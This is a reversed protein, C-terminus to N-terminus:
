SLLRLLLRREKQAPAGIMAKTNDVILRRGPFLPIQLSYEACVRGLKQLSLYLKELSNTTIASSRTRNNFTASIIQRGEDDLEYIPHLARFPGEIYELECQKLFAFEEPHSQEMAELAKMTDILTILAPQMTSGTEMADIIVLSPVTQLHPWLTGPEQASSNWECQGMVLSEAIPTQHTSLFLKGNLVHKAANDTQESGHTHIQHLSNAESSHLASDRLFSSSYSLYLYSPWQVQLSERSREVEVQEPKMHVDIHVLAPRKSTADRLWCYPFEAQYGDDWEIKLSKALPMCSRLPQCKSIVSSVARATVASMITLLRLRPQPFARAFCSVQIVKEPFEKRKQMICDLCYNEKYFFSCQVRNCVDRHCSYCKAGIIAFKKYDNKKKTKVRDIQQNLSRLYYVDHKYSLIGAKMPGYRARVSFGCLVCKFNFYEPGQQEEQQVDAQVASGSEEELSSKSVNGKTSDQQDPVIDTVLTDEM